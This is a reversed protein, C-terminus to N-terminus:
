FIQVIASHIWYKKNNDFALLVYICINQLFSPLKGSLLINARRDGIINYDFKEIVIQSNLESFFKKIDEGTYVINKYTLKSYPQWLDFFNDNRSNFLNIMKNMIDIVIENNMRYIM